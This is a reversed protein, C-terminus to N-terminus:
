WHTLSLTARVGLERYNGLRRLRGGRLQFTWQKSGKPGSVTVQYRGRTIRGRWKVSDHFRSVGLVKSLPADGIRHLVNDTKSGFVAHTGSLSIDVWLLPCEPPTDGGCTGVGEGVFAVDLLGDGDLDGLAPASWPGGPSKCLGLLVVIWRAKRDAPRIVAYQRRKGWWGYWQLWAATTKRGPHAFRGFLSPVSLLANSEEGRRLRPLGPLRGIKGGPDRLFSAPAWQKSKDADKPCCYCSYRFPTTSIIDKASVKWVAYRVRGPEVLAAGAIVDSVLPSPIREAVAAWEIKQLTAAATRSRGATPGSCGAASVSAILVLASGWAVCGSQAYRFPICTM